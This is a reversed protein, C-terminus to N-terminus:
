TFKIKFMKLCPQFIFGINITLNRNVNNFYLSLFIVFHTLYVSIRGLALYLFICVSVSLYLQFAHRSKENYIMRNILYTKIKLIM